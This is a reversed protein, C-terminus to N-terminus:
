PSPPTPILSLGAARSCFNNSPCRSVGVWRRIAWQMTRPAASTGKRDLTSSASSAPTLWGETVRKATASPKSPYGASRRCRRSTAGASRAAAAACSSAYLSYWCATWPSISFRRCSDAISASGEGTSSAPRTSAADLGNGTSPSRAADECARPNAYKAALTCGSTRSRSSPPEISASRISAAAPAPAEASSHKASGRCGRSTASARSWARAAPSFTTVTASEANAGTAREESRSIGAGTPVPSAKSM